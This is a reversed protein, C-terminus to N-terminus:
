GAHYPDLREATHRHSKPEPKRDRRTPRTPRARSRCVVGISRNVIQRAAVSGFLPTTRELVRASDSCNFTPSETVTSVISPSRRMTSMGFRPGARRNRRCRRRCPDRSREIAQQAFAGGDGTRKDASEARAALQIGRQLSRRADGGNSRFVGREGTEPLRDRLIKQPHADEVDEKAARDRRTDDVVARADREGFAAALQGRQADDTERTAFNRGNEQAFDPRSM